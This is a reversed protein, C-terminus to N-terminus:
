VVSTTLLWYNSLGSKQSFNNGRQAHVVLLFSRKSLNGMESGEPNHTLVKFLNSTQRLYIVFEVDLYYGVLYLHKMHLVVAFFTRHFPM